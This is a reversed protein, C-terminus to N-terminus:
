CHLSTTSSKVQYHIGKLELWNDVGLKEKCLVYLILSKTFLFHFNILCLLGSFISLLISEFKNLSFYQSLNPSNLLVVPVALTLVHNGIATVYFELNLKEFICQLWIIEVFFIIRSSLIDTIEIYNIM